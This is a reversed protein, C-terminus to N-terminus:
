FRIVKSSRNQKTGSKWNNFEKSFYWKKYESADSRTYKDYGLHNSMESELASVVLRKTLQKLLGGEKLLNSVDTNNDILLNGAQAIRNSDIKNM